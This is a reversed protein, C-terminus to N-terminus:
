LYKELERITNKISEKIQQKIEQNNALEKILDDLYIIDCFDSLCETSLCCYWILIGDTTAYIKMGNLSFESLELNIWKEVLAFIKNYLRKEKLEIGKKTITEEELRDGISIHITPFLEDILQKFSKTM